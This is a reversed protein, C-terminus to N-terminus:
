IVGGKANRAPTSLSSPNPGSKAATNSNCPREDNQYRGYYSYGLGNKPIEGCPDRYHVTYSNAWYEGSGAARTEYYHSSCGGLLAFVAASTFVFVYRKLSLQWYTSADKAIARADLPRSIDINSQAADHSVMQTTASM